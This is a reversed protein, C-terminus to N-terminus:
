YSGEQIHLPLAAIHDATSWHARDAEEQETLIRHRRALWDNDDPGEAWECAEQWNRVAGHFNTLNDYAGLLTQDGNLIRGALSDLHATDGSTTADKASAILMLLEGRRSIYREFATVMHEAAETPTPEVDGMECAHCMWDIGCGGVFVGHKCYDTM